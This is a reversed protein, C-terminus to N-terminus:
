LPLSTRKQKSLLRRAHRLCNNHARVYTNLQESSMPFRLRRRQSLALAVWASPDKLEKNQDLTSTALGLKHSRWLPDREMFEREIKIMM